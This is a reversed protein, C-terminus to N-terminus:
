PGSGKALVDNCIAILAEPQEVLARAESATLDLATLRETMDDMIQGAEREARLKFEAIRNQWEGAEVALAGLALTSAPPGPADKLADLWARWDGYSFVHASESPAALLRVAERYSLDAVRQPNGDTLKPWERALRMYAQATRESGEFNGSLWALWGGHECLAKAEALLEGAYIAHQVATRIAEECQRHETNIQEALAPLTKAPTLTSSM